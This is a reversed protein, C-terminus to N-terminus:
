NVRVSKEFDVKFLFVKNKVNKEWYYIENIILPGDLINRGDVYTTKVEYIVFGIVKKMRAALVNAIIKYMCGIIIIPRYGGIKIPNIIEPNLMIFSSHCGIFIRGFEEFYKVYSMADYKIFDWQSKLLKFTFGDPRPAKKSGCEFVANKIEESNFNM